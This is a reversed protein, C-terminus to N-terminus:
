FLADGASLLYRDLNGFPRTALLLNVSQGIRFGSALLFALGAHCSGPVVLSARPVQQEELWRLSEAMASPVDNAACLAAPGIGGHRSVYSYGVSRGDRLMLLASLDPQGLWLRHDPLRMFGLASKDIRNLTDLVDKGVGVRRATVGRARAPASTPGELRLLPVWPYMGHKAYLANSVPQTAESIVARIVDEGTGHELCRRLLERGIGRNQYVPLVHLAALYLFNERRIGIGFAVLVGRSEAVFFGGRDYDLANRRFALGRAARQPTDEIEPRHQRLRLENTAALFLKYTSPLDDSRAPRFVLETM